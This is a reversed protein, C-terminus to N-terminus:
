SKQLMGTLRGGPRDSSYNVSGDGRLGVTALKGGDDCGTGGTVRFAFTLENEVGNVMRGISECRNGSGQATSIADVVEEAGKGSKITFVLDFAGAGGSVTGTWKGLFAQPM